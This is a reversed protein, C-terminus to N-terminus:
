TESKGFPVSLSRAADAVTSPTLSLEFPVVEFFNLARGEPSVELRGRVLGAEELKRLHLHLLPRSMGVDRALQSVYARGDAQLAAVIRLRHPSALASVARLLRDGATEM